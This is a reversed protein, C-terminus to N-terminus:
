SAEKEYMGGFGNRIREARSVMESPREGALHVVNLLTEHWEESYDSTAYGLFGPAGLTTHILRAYENYPLEGCLWNWSLPLSGIQDPRLWSFRHLYRGGAEAVFDKTLVKHAPHSCNWLILSSWNKCPYSLNDAELPTGIFKRHHRTEYEHKCVMVAKSEDRMDWLDAIDARFLMDSDCYMAWGDFEMLSPVLFRSYIFANTGDQQGDFNDLMGKHLPTISVPVSATEIISQTLVHYVASERPDYGAFLRVHDTM